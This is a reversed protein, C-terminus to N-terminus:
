LRIKGIALYMPYEISIVSKPPMFPSNQGPKYLFGFITPAPPQGPDRGVVTGLEGIPPKSDSHCRDTKRAIKPNDCYGSIGGPLKVYVRGCMCCPATTTALCSPNNLRNYPEHLSIRFTHRLECILVSSCACDRIASELIRVPEVVRTGSCFLFDAALVPRSLNPFILALNRHLM